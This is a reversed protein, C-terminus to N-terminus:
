MAFNGHKRFIKDQLMRIRPTVYTETVYQMYRALGNSRITSLQFINFINEIGEWSFVTAYHPFDGNDALLATRTETPVGFMFGEDYEPYIITLSSLEYGHIGYKTNSLVPVEYLTFIGTRVFGQMSSKLGDILTQYLSSPFVQADEAHHTFSLPPNKYEGFVISLDRRVSKSLSESANIFMVINEQKRALLAFIGSNDIVGGDVFTAKKNSPGASQYLNPVYQM